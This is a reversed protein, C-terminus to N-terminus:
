KNKTKEKNKIKKKEKKRKNERKKPTKRKKNRNKNTVIKKKKKTKEKKKAGTAGSAALLIEPRPALTPAWTWWGGTLRADDPPEMGAGSGQVRAAVLVLGQPAVRWDEEWRVHEVSHTWGLTFSAAALRLVGAAAAVCLSM